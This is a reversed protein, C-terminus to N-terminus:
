RHRGAASVLGPLQIESHGNAEPDRGRVDAIIRLLRLRERLQVARVQDRLRELRVQPDLVPNSSSGPGGSDGDVLEIILPEADGRVEDLCPDFLVELNADDDDSIVREGDPDVSVRIRGADVEARVVVRDGVLQDAKGFTRHPSCANM